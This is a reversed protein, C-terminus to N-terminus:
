FTCSAAIIYVAHEYIIM